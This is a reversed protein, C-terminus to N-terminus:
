RARKSRPTGTGNGSARECLEEPRERGGKWQDDGALDGAERDGAFVSVDPAADARRLQEQQDLIPM